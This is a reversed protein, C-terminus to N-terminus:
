FGYQQSNTHAIWQEEGITTNDGHGPIVVTDLPLQALRKLSQFMKQPRATPFSLNGITRRFLTDGSILLKEKEIWYCVGGPTHGPTHLVEIEIMGVKIKQQDVVFVDPQVSSIPILLPLGDSGPHLLNDKDENHVYIPINLSEKLLSAEGFHDWHSHTLLLMKPSLHHKKLAADISAKCGIPADIIAALQNKPCGILIVNTELPGSSFIEIIMNCRLPNSGRVEHNTAM